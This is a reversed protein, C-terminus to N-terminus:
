FLQSEDLCNKADIIAVIAKGAHLHGLSDKMSDLEDALGQLDNMIDEAGRAKPPDKPKEIKKETAKANV